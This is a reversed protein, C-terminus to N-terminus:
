VAALAALEDASHVVGTPNVPNNLVLWRTRATIAAALDDPRLRFGNNQACPVLVPTGDALRVQEVYPMWCPTPVIVEDGSALTAFLAEFLAQTSGATVIIEDRAFELGNQRRFTARVADKLEPTGDVTTYRTEG